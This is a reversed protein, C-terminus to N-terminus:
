EKRKWFRRKHTRKYDELEIEDLIKEYGENLVRVIIQETIDVYEKFMKEPVKYYHSGFSYIKAGYQAIPHICTIARLDMDNKPDDKRRIQIDINSTYGDGFEIRSYELQCDEGRYFWSLQIDIALGLNDLPVVYKELRSKVSALTQEEYAIFEGSRKKLGRKTM